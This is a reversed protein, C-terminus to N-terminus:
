ARVVVIVAGCHLAAREDRAREDSLTKKHFHEGKCCQDILFLSLQPPALWDFPDLKIRAMRVSTLPPRPRAQRLEQTSLFPRSRLSLRESEIDTTQEATDMPRSLGHMFCWEDQRRSRASTAADSRRLRM